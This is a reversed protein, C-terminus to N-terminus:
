RIARREKRRQDNFNQQRKARLAYAKKWKARGVERWHKPLEKFGQARPREHRRHPFGILDLFRCVTDRTLRLIRPNENTFVDPVSRLDALVRILSDVERAAEEAPAPKTSAYGNRDQIQHNAWYFLPVSAICLHRTM